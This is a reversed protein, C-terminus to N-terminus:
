DSETDANKNKKSGASKVPHAYRMQAGGTFAPVRLSSEKRAQAMLPDYRRLGDLVGNAINLSNLMTDPDGIATIVFPATQKVENILAVPGACRISTSTVIRQNGVSIAEAGSAKLENIVENIDRDHILYDQPNVAIMPQKKSDTLTVVVGPGTMETYGAQMRADQLESNLAQAGDTRKAIINELSKAHERLKTIEQSDKEAKKLAAASETGYDFGIRSPGVGATAIKNATFVAASLLLGLVFCLLSIQWYFSKHRIGASFVSM